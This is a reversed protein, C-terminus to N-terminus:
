QFRSWSYNTQTLPFVKSIFRLLKGLTGATGLCLRELRPQVYFCAFARLLACILAFSHLRLNVFSRLLACFLAFRRLLACRCLFHLCGPKFCGLKPVGSRTLITVLGLSPSRCRVLMVFGVSKINFKLSTSMKVHAVVSEHSCPFLLLASVKTQFVELVLHVSTFRSQFSGPNGYIEKRFVRLFSICAQFIINAHIKTIFKRRREYTLTDLLARSRFALTDQLVM